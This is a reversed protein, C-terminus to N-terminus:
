KHGLVGGLQLRERWLPFCMRLGMRRGERGSPGHAGWSTGDESTGEEDPLPAGTAGTTKHKERFALLGGTGGFVSLIKAM